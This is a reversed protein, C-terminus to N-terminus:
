HIGYEADILEATENSVDSCIVRDDPNSRLSAYFENEEMVVAVEEFHDVKCVGNINDAQLRM